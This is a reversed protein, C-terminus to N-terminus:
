DDVEIGSDFGMSGGYNGSNRITFGEIYTSNATFKVVDDENSGDIITTNMEEGILNISKNVVVHEYYPSSDDYVFVTDGDSTDNIAGQITTYNGPGSGGVYLTIGRDLSKHIGSGSINFASAFSTVIFLIYIVLVLIKGFISSSM